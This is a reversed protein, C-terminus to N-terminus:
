KTAAALRSRAERAISPDFLREAPVKTGVYAFYDAWYDQMALISDMRPMGDEAVYSWNPAMGRLLEPKNLLTNRALIQLVDPYRDPARAAANFEKVGRLYATAFRVLVDRRGDLFDRRVAYTAIQGDPEVADAVALIPGWGNQQAYLAFQYALESADVQGQGLMKMIEPQPINAVWQVDRRPDLGASQLARAMVYQNLSGTAGVGIKRGKLRALDALSKVGAEHAAQTVSIADYGFGPRNHGRDLVIVIPAGKAVSNFFSASPTTFAIDIEGSVMSPVAMAADQFIRTEVAIGAEDFYGKERAIFFGGGTTFPGEGVRILDAAVADGIAAHLCLLGAAVGCWKSMLRKSLPWRSMPNGM